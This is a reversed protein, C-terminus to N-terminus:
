MSCCGDVYRHHMEQSSFIKWEIFIRHMNDNINFANSRHALTPIGHSYAALHPPLIARISNPQFWVTKKSQTHANPASLNMLSCTGQFHAKDNLSNWRRNSQLRLCNPFFKTQTLLGFTLHFTIVQSIWHVCTWRGNDITWAWQIGIWFSFNDERFEHNIQCVSRLRCEWLISAPSCCLICRSIPCHVDFVYISSLRVQHLRLLVSLNM